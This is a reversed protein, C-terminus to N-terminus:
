PDFGYYSPPKTNRTPRRTAATDSPTQITPPDDNPAPLPVPRLLRRNRWLVRGSALKIFYDRFRGIAVIIGNRNWRKSKTDQIIVSMGITLKSLTTTNKDFHEKIKNHILESQEEANAFSNQWEFKFSNRHAPVLSRLPCGYLIQAPSLGNSRPTNRFELLGAIYTDDDLQGNTTAKIVLNKMSKVGSEALGNSQPNEPTSPRHTVNWRKLFDTFSKASFQPGGDSRLRVPVGTDVFRQRLQRIVDNATPDKNYWATVTPWGSLRDIYVLYSHGAHSFLDASCDEFPRSPAPEVLLPENPLSAQREQCAHCATVTNSIDSNIGPWYVTQRARRKTREIGQHSSHLQQLISKRQAKPIVIRHGNFLILGSDHSLHDKLGWYSHLPSPLDQKRAPFGHSVYNFLQKYDTDEAAASKLIELMPDSLHPSLSIASIILKISQHDHLPNYQAEHPLPTDVPARSLADPIAHDKGPKWTTTFTYPMLKERLRQLRSNDIQDLTYQNLIPILPKHDTYLTYNPQGLLYHRCKTTAWVIALLELEIIAYRSETENIFRSGAQILHLQGNASQQLLAFGLGHLRSADTQLIIPLDHQFPKLIPPSALHQKVNNFAIDHEASWMFTNDKKLLGRLPQTAASLGNTFDGFQNALGLFSRLETLSTPCPFDTIAKIKAPDVKIGNIGIIHGVFKVETQAFKFKHPNLTIGHERCRILLGILQKIHAEFSSERALIDDVVKDINPLGSIALDGRRNYEDGAGVFGMPARLFKYRGWPTIFTTLHQSDSDLPIQWYGHTADLTTFYRDTQKYNSISDKVSPMPYTQRLVNSNLKTLDVCIRVDGNPKPVVVMPHTWIAPEDGIPSIIGQSVMTELARQAKDRYALPIKRASYLCFPQVENKLHIKMPPDTTMCGLQGETSFVDSFMTLLHEKFLSIESESPNTSPVPLQAFVEHVTTFPPPRPLSSIQQLQPAKTPLTTEKFHPLPWNPSLLGLNKCSKFSLLPLVVDDCIYVRTSTSKDYYTLEVDVFGRCNIIKNNASFIEFKNDFTSINDHHINLNDLFFSNAVSIDAGTDPQWKIDTQTPAHPLSVNVVITDAKTAIDLTRNLTGISIRKTSPSTNQQSPSKNKRFCVTAFHGAVHCYTCTAKSAPCLKRELHKDQGCWRCIIPKSLSGSKSFSQTQTITKAVHHHSLPNALTESNSSAAEESCCLDTVQQLTPSPRLKMLKRKTEQSTIGATLVTAIQDDYCTKCLDANYALKKTRVLFDDFLEDTEQRCNIFAVRDIIINQKSRFHKEIMSLIETTTKTTDNPVQLSYLLTDRMDATLCSRLRAIQEQQPFDNLKGLKVYDNWQGLWTQFGPCTTTSTLQPPPQPASYRPTNSSPQSPEASKSQTNDLRNLLLENQHLLRDERAQSSKIMEQQQKLLIEIWSPIGSSEQHNDTKDTIPTDDEEDIQQRSSSSRTNAM